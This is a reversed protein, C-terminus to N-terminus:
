FIQILKRERVLPLGSNNSVASGILNRTSLPPWNSSKGRLGVLLAAIIPSGRLSSFM